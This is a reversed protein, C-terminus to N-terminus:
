NLYLSVESYDSTKTKETKEVVAIECLKMELRINESILNVFFCYM